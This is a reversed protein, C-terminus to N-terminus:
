TAGKKTQRVSGRRRGVVLLTMLCATLFFGILPVIVAFFVLALVWPPAIWAFVGTVGGWFAMAAIPHRNNTLDFLAFCAGTVHLMYAIWLETIREMTSNM